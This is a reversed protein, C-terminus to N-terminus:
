RPARAHDHGLRDARQDRQLERVRREANRRQEAQQRQHADRHFGGHNDDGVDILQPEFAHVDVCAVRSPESSRKRGIM